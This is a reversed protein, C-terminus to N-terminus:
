AGRDDFLVGHMRLSLKQLEDIGGITKQLDLQLLWPM